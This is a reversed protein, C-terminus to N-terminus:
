KLENIVAQNAARVESEILKIQKRDYTM